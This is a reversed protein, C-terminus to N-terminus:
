VNNVKNEKELRKCTCDSGMDVMVTIGYITVQVEYELLEGCTDCRAEVKIEAM